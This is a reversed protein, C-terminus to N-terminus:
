LKYTKNSFAEWLFKDTAETRMGTLMLSVRPHYSANATYHPVNDLDFTHFDGAKWGTYTYNGYGFWQGQQWDTLMVHVRMLRSKDVLKYEHRNQFIDVHWPFCQGTMQVHITDQTPAEFAFCDIMKQVMNGAKTNVKNIIKYNYYGEGFGVKQFFEAEANEYADQKKNTSPKPPDYNVFEEDGRSNFTQPKSLEILEAVEDSWDGEFRGLVRATDYRDDWQTTDFHYGKADAIAEEQFGYHSNEPAIIKSM